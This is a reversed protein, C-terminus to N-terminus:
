RSLLSLFHYFKLQFAFILSSNLQLALVISLCTLFHNNLDNTLWSVSSLIRYFINSQPFINLFSCKYASVTVFKYSILHVSWRYVLGAVLLIDSYDRFNLFEGELTWIYFINLQERNYFIQFKSHSNMVLTPLWRM